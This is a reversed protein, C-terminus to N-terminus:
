IKRRWNSVVQQSNRSTSYANGKKVRTTEHLWKKITDLMEVGTFKYLENVVRLPSRALDEFRILKYGDPYFRKLLKGIKVDFEMQHCVKEVFWSLERRPDHSRRFFALFKLSEVVARPDRVLHIIKCENAGNSSCSEFLNKNWEGLSNLIRPTLIKAAFVIYDNKCVNEAQRAKFKQCVTSTGNGVCFRSRLALSHRRSQGRLYRTFMDGSFKCNYIDEFVNFAKNQYSPSSYNSGFFSDMSFTKQVAQLPEFLYFVSPHHNFIEGLFSSGSRPFSMLMINVRKPHQVLPSNRLPNRITYMFTVSFFVLGILHSIIFCKKSNFRNCWTERRMELPQQNMTQLAPPGISYIM